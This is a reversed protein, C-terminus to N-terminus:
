SPVGAVQLAWILESSPEHNEVRVAVMNLWNPAATVNEGAM